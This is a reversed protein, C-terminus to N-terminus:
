PRAEGDRVAVPAAAGFVRPEVPDRSLRSVVALGVASLGLGVTVVLLGGGSRYFERFPGDQITLVLLVLWPLVFVARANIRQELSETTMQEVARVDRTTAETLDRLVDGLIRGGQEHALVLVEIIRDSTPDALEEKVVELANVVGLVPALRPYSAFAQRLPGPGNGALDVVAQHLSSGTSIAASLDRLGDPWAEQLGRMRRVRRRAFVLRPAAGAAIAPMVAVVPTATAGALLAFTAVALATSGLTFQRPTLDVGAQALWTRRDSAHAPRPRVRRLTPLNDTLAGVVLAAAVASALAAAGATM